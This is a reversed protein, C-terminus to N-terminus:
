VRVGRMHLAERLEPSRLTSAVTDFIGSVMKHEAREAALEASTHSALIVRAVFWEQGDETPDYEYVLAGNLREWYERHATPEPWFVSKAEM